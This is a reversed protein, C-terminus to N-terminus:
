TTKILVSLAQPLRLEGDPLNRGGRDEDILEEVIRGASAIVTLHIGATWPILAAVPVEDLRGRKLIRTLVRGLRYRNVVPTRARGGFWM